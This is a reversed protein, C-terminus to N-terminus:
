WGERGGTHITHELPLEDRFFAAKQRVKEMPPPTLGWDMAKSATKSVIKTSRDYPLIKINYGSQTCKLFM